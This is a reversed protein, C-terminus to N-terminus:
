TPKGGGRSLIAFQTEVFHRLEDHGQTLGVVSENSVSRAIQAVLMSIVVPPYADLDVGYSRLSMTVAATEIDRVREAYNRLEAGIAKRHNALAMLETSMVTQRTDGNIRWLARLPDEETLVHRLQELAAEAGSRMVALFLDDMTPFYYYVLAQKVGAKAAVRRSTAAAYGDDHMIQATAEVLRQRTGGDDANTNAPARRPVEGRSRRKRAEIPM